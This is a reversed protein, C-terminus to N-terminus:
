GNTDGVPLVLTLKKGEPVISFFFNGGHSELIKKALMIGISIPSKVVPSFPMFFDEAANFGINRGNEVIDISVNECTQGFFISAGGNDGTDERIFDLVYEIAEKIRLIDGRIFIEKKEELNIRLNVPFNRATERFLVAIDVNEKKIETSDALKNIKEIIENIKGIEDQVVASFNNRFEEDEYKEPLMQSFTKIAVLPNKLEHSLRSALLTWYRSKELSKEREEMEKIATLNQFIAVAGEIGGNANKVANTSIGLIINKPIYRIEMRSFIEGSDLTRRVFDAIQSGAEEINKGKMNDPAMGFMEEACKNFITVLGQKNVGIIGAPINEFIAEQYDKQFTVQRYLFSNDLIAALYDSVINLFTMEGISISQGTSKEGAVIFGILKGNVTKMPFVIRSNLLTMFNVCEFDNKDCAIDFVRNRGMFFKILAHSQPVKVVSSISDEIGLSAFPIFLEEEKLFLMVNNFYFTKRMVRLIDMGIKRIDPFNEAITQFLNQFFLDRNFEGVTENDQRVPSTKKIDKKEQLLMEREVARRVIHVIREQEFPKEIVEFAGLSIADKALRNFSSVLKIVTLTADEALLQRLLELSDIEALGCDLFVVTPRRKAIVPLVYSPKVEEILFGERFIVRMSFSVSSDETILLIHNM